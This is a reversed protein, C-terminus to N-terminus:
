EFEVGAVDHLREYTSESVDAAAARLRCIEPTANDEFIVPLGDDTQYGKIELEILNNLNTSRLLQGTAATGFHGDNRAGARLTLRTVAAFAPNTALAQLCAADLDCGTLTLHKLRPTNLAQLLGATNLQPKSTYAYKEDFPNHIELTTLQPFDLSQSKRTKYRSWSITLMRLHPCAAAVTELVKPDNCQSYKLHRLNRCLPSELIQQWQGAKLKCGLNLAYLGPADFSCLTDVAAQTVDVGGVILRRLAPWRAGHLSTTFPELGPLLRLQFSHLHPHNVLCKSIRKVTAATAVGLGSPSFRKIAALWKSEYIAADDHSFDAVALQLRDFPAAALLATDHPDLHGHLKWGLLNEALQPRCIAKVVPHEQGQRSFLNRVEIFNLQAAESSQLIQLVPQFNDGNITLRLGRVPTTAFLKPLRATVEAADLPQFEVEAIAPLGREWDPSSPLEGCYFGAPLQYEENEILGDAFDEHADAFADGNDIGAAIAIAARILAAQRPFDPQLHDALALRAADDEPDAIIRDYFPQHDEDVEFRRSEWAQRDDASMNELFSGGAADPEDTGANDAETLNYEAADFEAEDDDEEDDSFAKNYAEIRDEIFEELTDYELEPQDALGAGLLWVGPSNDLKICYFDGGGNDGTILFTDWWQPLLAATETDPQREALNSEVLLSASLYLDPEFWCTEDGAVDYMYQQLQQGYAKMLTAYAAPVAVGLGAAIHDLDEQKM